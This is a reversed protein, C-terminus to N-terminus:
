LTLLDSEYSYDESHYPLTKPSARAAQVSKGAVQKNAAHNM